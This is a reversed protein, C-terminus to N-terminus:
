RAIRGPRMSPLPPGEPAPLIWSAPAYGDEVTMLDVDPDILRAMPRGNLSAFADVRVEVDRHGRAELDQGIHHALQLVLDPQGGFEREQPVTLYRRPEVFRERARGDMRVRYTVSAAKSRVMVRWSFRMGQEHWLVDGGYAHARLPVLVQVMVWLALLAGGLRGLPRVRRVPAPATAVEPRLRRWLRRPWDADFFVLVFGTMLFPFMGINFLAGTVAHFVAVALFAVPRTRRFLLVFPITLDYLFGAWSMLLAAYPLALLGGILPLETRSSLWIGLPQGYLLWDPQLKALAAFVYVVGVQFRLLGLMWAPFADVAISPDRRADLSGARHLPLLCLLFALLIVLVYHNLYWTVDLLELYTFGAFFAVTAVRYFLGAAICLAAAILALVLAVLAPEPPTRVWEFGYFHFAFRPTVYFDWVWGEVLSRTLAVAGMLGFLVRFAVLGTVDVPAEAKAQLAQLLRSASGVPM